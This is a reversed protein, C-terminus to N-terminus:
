PGLHTDLFSAVIGALEVPSPEVPKGDQSEFRHDANRAIVLTSDVGASKLQAHLEESQEPPVVDDLEGHLLLFPPAEPSIYSIPSADRLIPDDRDRAGFVDQALNRSDGPFPLLLDAPGCLTVVAKVQTSQDLYPQEYGTEPKWQGADRSLALLSVLHGGASAGLVAIRQPDVGYEAANSKLSRVACRADEIMAPFPHEPALRYNISVFLYNQLAMRAGGLIASGGRKDGGIWSGGHVYVVTPFPPEGTRPYYVDMLLAEGNVTCYELDYDVTGL